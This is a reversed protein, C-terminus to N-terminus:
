NDTTITSPDVGPTDSVRTFSKRLRKGRMTCDDKIKQFFLTNWDPSYYVEYVGIVNECMMDTYTEIAFRNGRMTYGGDLSPWGEAEINVRGDSYISIITARRAKTTWSGVLREYGPTIQQDPRPAPNLQEDEQLTPNEEEPTINEEEPLSETTDVLGPLAETDVTDTTSSVEPMEPPQVETGDSSQCALLAM